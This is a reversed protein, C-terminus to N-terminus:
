KRRLVDGGGYGAVLDEIKLVSCVATSAGTEHGQGGPPAPAGAPETM